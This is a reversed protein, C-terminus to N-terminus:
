LSADGVRCLPSLHACTSSLTVNAVRLTLHPHLVPTGGVPPRHWRGAPVLPESLQQPAPLPWPMSDLAVSTSLDARPARGCVHARPCLHACPCMGHMHVCMHVHVCLMLAVTELVRRDEETLIHVM